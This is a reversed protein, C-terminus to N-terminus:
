DIKQSKKKKKKGKTKTIGVITGISQPEKLEANKTIEAISGINQADKLEAEESNILPEVSAVVIEVKINQTEILTEGLDGKSFDGLDMNLSSKKRRLKRLQSKTRNKTTTQETSKLALEDKSTYHKTPEIEEIKSIEEIEQYKEVKKKSNKKKNKKVKLIPLEVPEKAVFHDPVKGEIEDSCHLTLKIDQDIDNYVENFTEDSLNNSNGSHEKEFSTESINNTDDLYECIKKISQLDTTSEEEATTSLAAVVELEVSENTIGNLSKLDDSNQFFKYILQSNEEAVSLSFVHESEVVEIVSECKESDSILLSEKGSSDSLSDIIEDSEIISYSQEETVIDLDNLSNNSENIELKEYAVDSLDKSTSDNNYHIEDVKEANFGKQLPNSHDDNFYDVVVNDSYDYDFTCDFTSTRSDVPTNISSNSENLNLNSTNVLMSNPAAIDAEFDDSANKYDTAKKQNYLKLLKLNKFKFPLFNAPPILTEKQYKLNELEIMENLKDVSKKHQLYYCKYEQIYNRLDTETHSLIRINEDLDRKLETILLNTSKMDM